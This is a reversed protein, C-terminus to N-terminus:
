GRQSVQKLVAWYSPPAPVLQRERLLQHMQPLRVYPVSAMLHHEIHFNVRVPAVTM